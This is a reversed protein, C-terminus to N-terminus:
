RAVKEPKAAGPVAQYRPNTKAITVSIGERMKQVGEAIILAGAEIPADVLVQGDTRAIITVPKRKALGDEIVWLYAGDSGWVIAAEPVTPFPRGKIEFLIRFSMGPRFRDASNDVQARATFSRRDQDIRSDVKVIRAMLNANQDAFPSVRITDGIALATFVEEPASFDVYLIRRDDLRTIAESPTVRAGPDIDSLGLFGEFPAKVTRDDLTVQARQLNIGAGKLATEAEDIQSDSIAGTDEIRRYRELLQRAEDVAVSAFEVDLTEQRADLKLLPQGSKVTDGAEFLVQTVDGAAAPFLVASLRARATGVAEVRRIEAQLGAPQAIVAVARDGGGPRGRGGGESGSPTGDSCASLTLCLFSLVAWGMRVTTGFIMSILKVEVSQPLVFIVDIQVTYFIM